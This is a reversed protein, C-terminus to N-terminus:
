GAGVCVGAGRIACQERGVLVITARGPNVVYEGVVQATPTGAPVCAWRLERLTAIAQM